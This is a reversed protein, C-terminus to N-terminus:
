QFEASMNEPILVGASTSDRLSLRMSGKDGITRLFEVLDNGNFGITIPEGGYSVPLTEESEGRDPASSSIKLTNDALHFKVGNSREDSFELVRQISTMLEASRIVMSHPLGKPLIAEYDPFKGALKRVSLLKPGIQFYLTADDESFHVTEEKTASLLSLLDTLCERPLLSKQVDRVSIGEDPVVVFSLRHGDTAVMGARDPSLLRLAAKLLYRDDSRMLRHHDVAACEALDDGVRAANIYSRGDSVLLPSAPEGDVEPEGRRKALFRYQHRRVLYTVLPFCQQPELSIASLMTILEAIASENLHNVAVGIAIGLKALGRIESLRNAGSAFVQVDNPLPARFGSIDFLMDGGAGLPTAISVAM